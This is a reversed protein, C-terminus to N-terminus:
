KTVYAMYEGLVEEITQEISAAFSQQVSRTALQRFRALMVTLEELEDDSPIWREGKSERIHATATLVLKLAINDISPQLSEYLDLVTETTMGFTRMEAFATLLQPRTVIIKNGQRKVLGFDVLRDYSAKDGALRRVENAPMAVPLDDNWPSGLTEELGMVAALDRGSEWAHLMEAIHATTYGRELMSGILRLRALHGDDYIAIRGSRRPSPLLGRDQYARVNRTTMGAARALDDIRYESV